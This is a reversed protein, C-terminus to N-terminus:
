VPTPGPKRRGYTLIRWLWEVPGYSFRSLWVPSIFLQLAYFVLCMVLAPALSVRGYLGIGYFVATFVVSQALYNTLAMRGVASTRRVLGTGTFRRFFITALGMYGFALVPGGMFQLSQGIQILAFETPGGPSFVIAYAAVLNLPLGVALGIWAARRIGTRHAELNELWGARAVAAGVLFMGFIGPAVVLFSSAYFSLERLRQAVMEGYSGSGYAALASDALNRFPEVQTAAVESLARAGEPTLTVLLSLLGGALLLLPPLVLLIAAWILLTRPSLRRFLLFVFGLLAYTLLIDGSWILVAHLAGFLALVALRRALFWGSSQGREEARMTQMALGLGFMFAFINYFKTQVLFAVVFWLARDLGSLVDEGVPVLWAEPGYFFQINVLLIGFIALGRLADLTVIRRGGRVPRLEGVTGTM